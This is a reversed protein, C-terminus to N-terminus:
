HHVGLTFALEGAIEKILLHSVGEGLVLEPDLRLGNVYGATCRLLEDLEASASDIFLKLALVFKAVALEAEAGDQDQEMMIRYLNNLQLRTMEPTKNMTEM